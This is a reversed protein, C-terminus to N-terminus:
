PNDHRNLSDIPLVTVEYASNNTVVRCFEDVEQVQSSHFIGLAKIGNREFRLVEMSDGVEIQTLLIGRITYDVPLSLHELHGITPDWEDWRAPPSLPTNSAARKILRVMSGPQIHFPHM